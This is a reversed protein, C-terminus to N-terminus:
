LLSVVSPSIDALEVRYINVIKHNPSDKEIPLLFFYKILIDNLEVFM